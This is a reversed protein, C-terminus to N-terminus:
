TVVVVILSIILERFDTLINGNRHGILGYNSHYLEVPDDLFQPVLAAITFTNFLEGPLYKQKM